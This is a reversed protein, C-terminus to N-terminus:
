GRLDRKQILLHTVSFLLVWLGTSKERSGQGRLTKATKIVRWNRCISKTKDLKEQEQLCHEDSCALEGKGFNSMGVTDCSTGKGRLLTNRLPVNAGVWWEKVMKIDLAKQTM